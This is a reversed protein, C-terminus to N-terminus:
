QKPPSHARSRARAAGAPSSPATLKWPRSLGGPMAGCAGIVALVSTSCPQLSGSAGGASTAGGCSFEVGGQCGAAGGLTLPPGGMGQPAPAAGGGCAFLATATSLSVTALALRKLTFRPM